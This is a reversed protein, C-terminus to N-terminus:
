VAGDRAVFKEFCYPCLWGSESHYCVDDGSLSVNCLMCHGHDGLNEWRNKEWIYTRAEAVNERLFSREIRAGNVM